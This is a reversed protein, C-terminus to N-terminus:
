AQSAPSYHTLSLVKQYCDTTSEFGVRLRTKALELSIKVKEESTLAAKQGQERLHKCFAAESRRLLLFFIM